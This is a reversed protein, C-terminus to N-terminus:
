FSGGKAVAHIDDKFTLSVIAAASQHESHM